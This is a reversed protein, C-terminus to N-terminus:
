RSDGGWDTITKKTSENYEIFQGGVVLADSLKAARYMDELVKDDALWDDPDIFALYEGSAELMGRNRAMSVGRNNQNIVKIRKDKWANEFLITQSYDTSGDNVCIIEINNLTQTRVSNLCQQLYKEMNYIPIIVSVSISEDNELKERLRRADNTDAGYMEAIIRNKKSYLSTLNNRKLKEEIDPVSDIFEKLKDIELNELKVFNTTGVLKYLETIKNQYYENDFIAYAPVNNALSFVMMHYKTGINCKANILIEVCEDICKGVFSIWHICDSIEQPVEERFLEMLELDEPSLGLINIYEFVGEALTQEFLPLFIGKFVNIDNEKENERSFTINLYRQKENKKVYSWPFFADDCSFDIKSTECDSPLIKYSEDRFDIYRCDEIIEKIYKEYKLDYPYISIGTAFTEVNYLKALRCSLYVEYLMDKWKTNIYGGGIIHLVDLQQFIKHIEEYQYNGSINKLLREGEIEIKEIQYNNKVSIRHIYDVFIVEMKYGSCLNAAYSADKSFVYIKCNNGYIKECRRLTIDLIADDGFNPNGIAGLIGIRKFISMM